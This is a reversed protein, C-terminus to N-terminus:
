LGTKHRSLQRSLHSALTSRRLNDNLGAATKFDQVVQQMEQRSQRCDRLDRKIQKCVEDINQDYIEVNGRQRRVGGKPKSEEPAPAWCPSRMKGGVIAEAARWFQKTRKGEAYAEKVVRKQISPKSSGRAADSTGSIQKLAANRWAAEEATSGGDLQPEMQKAHSAPVSLCVNRGSHHGVDSTVEKPCEAVSASAPFGEIRREAVVQSSASASAPICEKQYEAVVRAAALARAHKEPIRPLKVFSSPRQKLVNMTPKGVLSSGILYNRPPLLCPSLSQLPMGPSSPAVTHNNDHLQWASDSAVDSPESRFKSTADSKDRRRVAQGETPAGGKGQAQAVAGRKRSSQRSRCHSSPADSQPPTEFESLSQWASDGIINSTHSPEVHITSATESEDGGLVQGETPAGGKSQACHAIGVKSSSQRSSCHSSAAHSGGIQLAEDQRAQPDNQAELWKRYRTRCGPPLDRGAEAPNSIIAERASDDEDQQQASACDDEDQLCEAHQEVQEKPEVPEEQTNQHRGNQQLIIHREHQLYRKRREQQEQAKKEAVKKHRNRLEDIQPTTARRLRFAGGLPSPIAPAGSVPISPSAM